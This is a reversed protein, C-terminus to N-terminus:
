NFAQNTLIYMGYGDYIFEIFTVYDSTVISNNGLAEGGNDNNFSLTKTLTMTEDIIQLMYNVGVSLTSETVTITTDTM